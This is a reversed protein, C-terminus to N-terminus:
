NYIEKYYKLEEILFEIAENKTPANYYYYKWGNIGQWTKNQNHNFEYSFMMLKKTDVNYAFKSLKSYKFKKCLMEAQEFTVFCSDLNEVEVSHEM